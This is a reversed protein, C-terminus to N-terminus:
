LAKELVALVQEASKELPFDMASGAAMRHGGGGFAACVKSVDVTEDKSRMSLRVAQEGEELTFCVRVGNIGRLIDMLGEMDGREVGVEKQAALSVTWYSVQGDCALTFGKLCERLIEVRRANHNFYTLANVTAVDVGRDVLDAMVQYTRATANSYQLSGTDTSIAVYLNDRTCDPIPFANETLLKYIIEGTAASKDCLILHDGYHENTIHHDITLVPAEPLASVVTDGLREISACDLAIIIDVEPLSPSQGTQMTLEESELFALYEPTSDRNVCTVEKGMELLSGALGLTSGIADGDPRYHTLIIFTQANKILDGAAEYSIDRATNPSLNM